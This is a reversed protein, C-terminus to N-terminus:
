TSRGAAKQTEVLGEVSMRDPHKEEQEEAIRKGYWDALDFPEDPVAGRCDEFAQEFTVKPFVDCGSEPNCNFLRFGEADFFPKLDALMANEKAYRGNRAGCRQGFAYQEADTMRFDVGLMYVRPCGLYHLLRIGLLMTCLCMFPRNDEPQKGGRGWHAHRTTLFTSADFVTRRSIGFTGPCAKVRRDLTRFTGDPLKARISKDLKGLPAFTLVKPDLFLGHHFKKQPDGFVWASVPVHGAVNNVALSVVGRERLRHFPVKNVSPGGCVLFAASPAWLGCLDVLRYGTGGCETCAEKRNDEAEGCPGCRRSREVACTPCAARIAAFAAACSACPVKPNVVTM